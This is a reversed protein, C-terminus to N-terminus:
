GRVHNRQCNLVIDVDLNLPVSGQQGLFHQPSGLGSTCQSADTDTYRRTRL